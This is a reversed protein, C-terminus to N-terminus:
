RPSGSCRRTSRASPSPNYVFFRKDIGVQTSALGVGDAQYMVDMMEGCLSRFDDDFDEVPNNTNRLGPLPWETITLDSREFKEPNRGGPQRAFLRTARCRTPAQLLARAPRLASASLAIM